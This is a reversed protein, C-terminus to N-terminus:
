SKGALVRQIMCSLKLGIKRILRAAVEGKAPHKSFAASM